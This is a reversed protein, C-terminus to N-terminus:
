KAYKESLGAQPAACCHNQQELFLPLNASAVRVNESKGGKEAPIMDQLFSSFVYKKKFPCWRRPFCVTRRILIVSFMFYILVGKPYDHIYLFPM